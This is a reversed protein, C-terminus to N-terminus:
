VGLADVFTQRSLLWPSTFQSFPETLDGIFPPKLAGVTFRSNYVSSEAAYVTTLRRLLM